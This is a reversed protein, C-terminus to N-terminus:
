SSYREAVNLRGPPRYEKNQSRGTPQTSVCTETISLCGLEAYKVSRNGGCSLMVGLM